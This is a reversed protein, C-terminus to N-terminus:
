LVGPCEGPATERQCEIHTSQPNESGLVYEMSSLICLPTREQIEQRSEINVKTAHVLWVRVTSCVRRMVERCSTSLQSNDGSNPGM